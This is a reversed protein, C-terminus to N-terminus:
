QYAASHLAEKVHRPLTFSRELGAWYFGDLRLLALTTLQCGGRQGRLAQRWMEVLQKARLAHDKTPAQVLLLMFFNSITAFGTRTGPNNILPPYTSPYLLDYM